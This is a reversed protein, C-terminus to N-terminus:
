GAEIFANPAKGGLRDASGASDARGAAPVAGLRSENVDDGTLTDNKVKSAVVANRKLQKTGVRNKPLNIAAYGTGGMAVVLSLLAVAMAPSPRYPRFRKMPGGPYIGGGERLAGM